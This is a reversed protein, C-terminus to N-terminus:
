YSTVRPCGTWVAANRLTENIGLTSFLRTHRVSIHRQCLVGSGSYVFLFMRVVCCVIFQPSHLSITNSAVHHHSLTMTKVFFLGNESDVRCRPSLPQVVNYFFSDNRPGLVNSGHSCVDLVTFYKLTEVQFRHQIPPVESLM